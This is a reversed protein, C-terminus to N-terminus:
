GTIDKLFSRIANIYAPYNERRISHGAGPIRVVRLLPNLAAAQHAVEVSVIAGKETDATVLLTPCDIAKVVEQWNRPASRV